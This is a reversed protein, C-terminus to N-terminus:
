PESEDPSTVPMSPSIIWAALSISEKRGQSANWSITLVVRTGIETPQLDGTLQASPIRESIFASPVLEKMAAPLEDASLASVRDIQNSLEDLALRYDRQSKLLRGHRVVLPAAVSITTVLLTFAVLADFTSTGARYQRSVHTRSLPNTLRRTMAKGLSGKSL